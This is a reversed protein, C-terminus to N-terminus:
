GRAEEGQGQNERGEHCGTLIRGAASSIIFLGIVFAAALARRDTFAAVALPLPQAPIRLNVASSRSSSAPFIFRSARLVGGASTSRAEDRPASMLATLRRAVETEAAYFPQAYVVQRSSEGGEGGAPGMGGAPLIGLTVAFLIILLWLASM